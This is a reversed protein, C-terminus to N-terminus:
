EHKSSDLILDELEELPERRLEKGEDKPDLRDIELGEREPQPRSESMM